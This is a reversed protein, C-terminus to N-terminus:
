TCRSTAPVIRCTSGAPQRRRATTPSSTPSRTPHTRGTASATASASTSGPSPSRSRPSRARGRDARLLDDTRRRNRPARSTRCCSRCGPSSSSSGARRRREALHGGPRPRSSPSRSSGSPSSARRTTAASPSSTRQSRPSRAKRRAHGARRRHLRPDRRRRAADPRRVRPPLGRSQPRLIARPRRHRRRPDQRRPSRELRKVSPTHHTHESMGGAHRRSPTGVIRFTGPGVRLGGRTDEPAAHTRTVDSKGNHTQLSIQDIAYGEHTSEPFEVQARGVNRRDDSGPM